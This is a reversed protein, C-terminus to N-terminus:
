IFLCLVKQIVLTISQVVFLKNRLSLSGNNLTYTNYQDDKHNIASIQRPHNRASTDPIFDTKVRRAGPKAGQVM